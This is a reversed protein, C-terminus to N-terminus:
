LKKLGGQDRLLGIDEGDDSDLRLEGEDGEDEIWDAFNYAKATVALVM